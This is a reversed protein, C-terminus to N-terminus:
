QRPSGHFAHGTMKTYKVLPNDGLGIEPALWFAPMYTLRTDTEMENLKKSRNVAVKQARFLKPYPTATDRFSDLGINSWYGICSLVEDLKIYQAVIIGCFGPYEHMLENCADADEKSEISSLPIVM